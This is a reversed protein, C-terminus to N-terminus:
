PTPTPVPPYTAMPTTVVSVVTLPISKLAAARAAWCTAVDSAPSGDVGVVIGFHKVPTSM